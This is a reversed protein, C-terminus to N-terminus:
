LRSLRRFRLFSSLAFGAMICGLFLSFGLGVPNPSPSQLTNYYKVSYGFFMAAFLAFLAALVKNWIIQAPRVVHPVMHQAFRKPGAAKISRALRLAEFLKRM